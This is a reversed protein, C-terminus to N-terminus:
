LEGLSLLEEEPLDEGWFWVYGYCQVRAVIRQALCIGNKGALTQWARYFYCM